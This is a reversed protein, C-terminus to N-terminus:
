EMYWGGSGEKSTKWGVKGKEIMKGEIGKQMWNRSREETM